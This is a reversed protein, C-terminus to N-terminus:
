SVNGNAVRAEAAKLACYRLLSDVGRYRNKSNRVIWLGTGPWYDVIGGTDVTVVIHAGENLSFFSVSARRLKDEGNARNRARTGKSAERVDRWFEDMGDTSNM